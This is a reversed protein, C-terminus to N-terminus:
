GLTGPSQEGRLYAYGCDARDAEPQKRHGPFEVQPLSQVAAPQLLV